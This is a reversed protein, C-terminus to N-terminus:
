LVPKQLLRNHTGRIVIILTIILTELILEKPTVVPNQTKPEMPSQPRRANQVHSPTEPWAEVDSEPWRLQDSGFM